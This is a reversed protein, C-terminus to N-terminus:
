HRNAKCNCMPDNGTWNGCELCTRTMNGDLEYGEFCSYNAISGFTSEAILVYGQLPSTLSGCDVVVAPHVIFNMVCVIALLYM